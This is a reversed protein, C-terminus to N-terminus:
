TPAYRPGEESATGTVDTGAKLLAIRAEAEKRRDTIDALRDRLNSSEQEQEYLKV